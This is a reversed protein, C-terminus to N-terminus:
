RVPVVVRVTRLTEDCLHIDDPVSDFVKKSVNSAWQKMTAIIEPDQEIGQKVVLRVEYTGDSKNLQVSAREGDSYKEEDLFAGLKRAEAETVASTFYLESGEIEVREHGDGVRVPPAVEQVCATHGCRVAAIARGQPPVRGLSGGDVMSAVAYVQASGIPFRGGERLRDRGGAVKPLDRAAQPVRSAPCRDPM